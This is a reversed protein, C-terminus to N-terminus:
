TKHIMSINWTYVLSYAYVRQGETKVCIAIHKIHMTGCRAKKNIDQCDNQWYM